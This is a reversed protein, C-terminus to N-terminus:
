TTGILLVDSNFDHMRIRSIGNECSIVPKSIQKDTLNILNMEYGSLDMNVKVDVSYPVYIAVKKNDKSASMRIESRQFENENLIGDYCPELEFLNYVEFLWKAFSADWAGKFKLAAQWPFAKGGFDENRFEKGHKYWGWVGHAGYALGAKAGSLLSQWIARRIDFENYRGYTANGYGHGEYCFESNVVPRKVPSEYYSKAATYQNSHEAVVHGSQYTYFDLLKSNIFVEHLPSNTVEHMTTLADPCMSKITELSTMYYRNTLDTPFDTDGSVVYIPDYKSFAKVIYETYPKVVELPMLDTKKQTTAWTDAVYSAHLVILVPIFGKDYATQLMKQARGFYEDNMRYFDFKGDEKLKFPYIGLDSKGADWQQLINIQIANFNQSKRYDLYAEWEEFGINYFASWFTDALFFYGKGNLTFYDRTDSIKIKSM